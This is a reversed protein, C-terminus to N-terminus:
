VGASRNRQAGACRAADPVRPPAAGPALSRTSEGVQEVM